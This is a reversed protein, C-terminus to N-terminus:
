SGDLYGYRSEAYATKECARCVYPDELGSKLIMSGCSICRRRHMKVQDRILKKM